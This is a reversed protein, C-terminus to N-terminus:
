QMWQMVRGHAAVAPIAKQCGDRLRLQTM